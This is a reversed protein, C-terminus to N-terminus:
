CKGSTRGSLRLSSPECTTTASTIPSPLTTRFRRSARARDTRALFFTKSRCIGFEIVNLGIAAPCPARLCAAPPFLAGCLPARVTRCTEIKNCFVITRPCPLRQLVTALASLKRRTGGEHTMDSGGSCDVLQETIGAPLASATREAGPRFTGLALGQLARPDTSRCRAAAGRVLLCVVGRRTAGAAIHHLNPGTAAVLDPCLQRLRSYVTAPLTASALVLRLNRAESRLISQLDDDFAHMGGVLIDVEDLVLAQLM